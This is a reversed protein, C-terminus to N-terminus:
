ASPASGAPKEGRVLAVCSYTSARWRVLSHLRSSLRPLRRSHSAEPSPPAYHADECSNEVPCSWSPALWSYLAPAPPFVRAPTVVYPPADPDEYSSCPLMSSNFSPYVADLPITLGTPSFVSKDVMTHPQVGLGVLILVLKRLM